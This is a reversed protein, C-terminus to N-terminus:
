YHVQGYEQVVLRDTRRYIAGYMSGTGSAHAYRGTGRTLTMKGSFSEWGGHGGSATGASRGSLTAGALYITFSATATARASDIDLRIKVTGPLTGTAKGEEILTEGFSRVRHLEAKDRVSLVKASRFVNAAFPIAQLWCSARPELDIPTTVNQCVPM